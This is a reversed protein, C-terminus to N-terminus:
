SGQSSADVLQGDRRRYAMTGFGAAILLALGGGLRLPGDNSSGPATGGAGTQIPGGPAAALEGCLAPATAERPLSDDLSSREEQDMDLTGNGNEDLGHVVIVTKGLDAKLADPIPIGSRSYNFSTGTMFRDVALASDPTSDGETTLSVRVEGYDPQGEATDIVGDGDADADPGPCMGASVSMGDIIGHMHQAHPGDLNLNSANIEVSMTEGDDSVTVKATGSGGSDNLEDLNTTYVSGEHSAGAVGVFMLSAAGATAIGTILKKM